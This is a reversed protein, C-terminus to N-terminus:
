LWLEPATMHCSGDLSAQCIRLKCRERTTGAGAADSSTRAHWGPSRGYNRLEGRPCIESEASSHHVGGAAAGAVFMAISVQTIYAEQQWHPWPCSAATMRPSRPPLRDGADLAVSSATVAPLKTVLTGGVATASGEARRARGHESKGPDRRAAVRSQLLRIQGRGSGM